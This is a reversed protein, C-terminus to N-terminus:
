EIKLLDEDGFDKALGIKSPLLSLRESKRLCSTYIADKVNKFGNIDCIKNLQRYHNYFQGVSELGCTQVPKEDVSVLKEEELPKELGKDIEKEDVEDIDSEDTKGISFNM